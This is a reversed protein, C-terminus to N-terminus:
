PQKALAEDLIDPLASASGSGTRSWIVRHDPGYVVMTPIATVGLADLTIGAGYGVPWTFGSFRTIVDRVNGLARSDESTLGIFEVGLPQYQAYLQTLKPLEGLCPGCWSAWCDVVVIKGDIRDFLPTGDDDNLWGEVFVEPLPTGLAVPGGSPSPSLLARFIILVIMAGLVLLGWDLASTRSTTPQDAM